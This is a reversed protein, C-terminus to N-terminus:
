KLTKIIVLKKRIKKLQNKNVIPTISNNTNLGKLMARRIDGDTLTGILKRNKDIVILTKLKVNNLVKIADIIKKNDLIINGSYKSLKKKM